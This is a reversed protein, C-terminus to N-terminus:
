RLRPLWELVRRPSAKERGPVLCLSALGCPLHGTLQTAGAEQVAAGWMVGLGCHPLYIAGLLVSGSVPGSVSTM